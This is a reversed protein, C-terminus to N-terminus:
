GCTVPQGAALWFWGGTTWSWANHFMVVTILLCGLFWSVRFATSAVDGQWRTTVSLGAFGVSGLVLCGVLQSWETVGWCGPLTWVRLAASLWVVALGAAMLLTLRLAVERYITRALTLM